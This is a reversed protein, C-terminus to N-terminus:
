WSGTNQWENMNSDACRVSDSQNSSRGAHTTLQRRILGAIQAACPYSRVAM